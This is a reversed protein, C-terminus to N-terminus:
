IMSNELAIYEADEWVLGIEASYLSPTMLVAFQDGRISEAALMVHRNAMLLARAKPPVQVIYRQLQRALKGSPIAPNGLDAIAKRAAEDGPVIVPLLGSEIMRFAEGVSRYAFNTGTADIRFKKLIDRATSGRAWAGSSRRSTTRLPRQRSSIPTSTEQHARFRRYAGQDREARHLRGARLRHRREDEPDRGGERNCRGAAQAIQDLGAEARFVGPFDVDVGAEILSTAILRCPAAM